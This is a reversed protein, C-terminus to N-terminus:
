HDFTHDRISIIVQILIAGLIDITRCEIGKMRINQQSRNRSAIKEVQSESGFLIWFKSM